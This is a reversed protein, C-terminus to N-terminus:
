SVCAHSIPGYMGIGKYAVGRGAKASNQRGPYGCRFNLPWDGPYSRIKGPLRGGLPRKPQVLVHRHSGGGHPAHGHSAHGHSAHRHSAHVLRMGMLEIDILHLGLSIPRYVGMSCTPSICAWSIDGYFSRHAFYGARRARFECEFDSGQDM